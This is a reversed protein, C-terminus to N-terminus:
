RSLSRAEDIAKRFTAKVCGFRGGRVESADENVVTFHNEMKGNDLDRVRYATFPNAELWEVRETDQQTEAIGTALDKLVDMENGELELIYGGASPKPIANRLIAPLIEAIKQLTPNM